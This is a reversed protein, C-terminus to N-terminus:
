FLCEIGIICIFVKYMLKVQSICIHCIRKIKNLFLIVNFSLIMHRQEYFVICCDIFTAHNKLNDDPSLFNFRKFIYTTITVQFSAPGCVVNIVLKLTKNRSITLTVHM